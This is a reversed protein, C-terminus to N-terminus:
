VSAISTAASSWSSSRGWTQHRGVEGSPCRGHQEGLELDPVGTRGGGRATDRQPVQHEGGVRHGAESTQQETRHDRRMQGVDVGIQHGIDVPQDALDFVSLADRLRAQTVAVLDVPVAQGHAHVAHDTVAVVDAEVQM